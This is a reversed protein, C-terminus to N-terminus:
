AAEGGLCVHRNCEICCHSRSMLLDCELNESTTENGTAVPKIRYQKFKHFYGVRLISCKAENESLKTIVNVPTSHVHPRRSPKCPTGDFRRSTVSKRTVIYDRM